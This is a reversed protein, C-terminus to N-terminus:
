FLWNLQAFAEFGAPRPSTVPAGAGVTFRARQFFTLHFGSTFSLTEPVGVPQSSLGRRSLPTNVHMELVPTIDNLLDSAPNQYVTYGAGVDTCLISVDRFDTPVVVSAFGQLFFRDRGLIGGLYPQFLVPHLSSGDSVVITEPGTPFTLMLGTSLVNGGPADNLLAYKLVLSLDGIDSRGLSGDGTQLQGVPLRLGVSANGNLFTKEFGIVERYLNMGSIHLDNGTSQDFAGNALQFNSIKLSSVGSQILLGSVIAQIQQPSSHANLLTINKATLFNGNSANSLIQAATATDPAPQTLVFNGQHLAAQIYSSYQSKFASGALQQLFSVVPAGTTDLKSGAAPPGFSTLGGANPFVGSTDGLPLGSGILNNFNGFSGYVRDLPRPSEVDAIKFSTNMDVPFRVGANFTAPAVFAAGPFGTQQITVVVAQQVPRLAFRAAFDGIMAPEPGRPPPVPGMPPLTVDSVPMLTLPKLGVPPAIGMDPPQPPLQTGFTIAPQTLNPLYGPSPDDPLPSPPPLVEAQASPPPLEPQASPAQGEAGGKAGGALLCAGLIGSVLKHIM